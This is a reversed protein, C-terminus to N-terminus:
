SLVGDPSCTLTVTLSHSGALFRSFTVKAVATDGDCYANGSDFSWGPAFVEYSYSARVAESTKGDYEFTGNVTASALVEDSSSYLRGIASGSKTHVANASASQIEKHEYVTYIIYYGDDLSVTYEKVSDDAFAPVLALSLAISLALVISLVKKM